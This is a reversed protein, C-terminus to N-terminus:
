QELHTHSIHELIIKWHKKNVETHCATGKTSSMSAVVSKRLMGISPKFSVFSSSSYRELAISFTVSGILHHHSWQITYGLSDAIANSKRLTGPINYRRINFNLRIIKLAIDVATSCRNECPQCSRWKVRFRMDGDMIQAKRQRPSQLLLSKISMGSITATIWVDHRPFFHARLLECGESDSDPLLMM